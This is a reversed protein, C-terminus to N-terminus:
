EYFFSGFYILLAVFGISMCLFFGKFSGSQLRHLGDVFVGTLTSISGIINREIMVIDFALWLIKGLTKLPTIFIKEYFSLLSESQWSFLQGSKIMINNPMFVLVALMIGFLQYFQSNNWARYTGMLWCLAGLIPLWYLATVSKAFAAVKEDAQTKGFYVLRLNAAYVASVAGLLVMDNLSFAVKTSLLAISSAMLLSLAFNLKTLRWFGGMRTADTEGSAGEIVIIMTLCILLIILLFFYSQLYLLEASQYIHDMAVAYLALSMLIAKSRIDKAMLAALLITAVSIGCWYSIVDSILPAGIMLERLKAMLILGSFPVSQTLLCSLRNLSVNKLTLYHGNLLFLGCKVGLAAALIVATLNQHEGKSVFESIKSLSISGTSGYVIALAVFIMMESLFNFVFLNKKANPFDALYFSMLALLCDAFMLQLFDHSSILLILSVFNLLMLTNIHLAHKEEKFFTNIYVLAGLLLVLPFILNQTRVSSSINFDAKLVDYPLWQYIFSNAPERNLSEMFFYAVVMLGVLLLVSWIKRRRGQTVLLSIFALAMLGIFLQLIM